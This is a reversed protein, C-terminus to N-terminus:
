PKKGINKRLKGSWRTALIGRACLQQQRTVHEDVVCFYHRQLIYYVTAELAVVPKKGKVRNLDEHLGDLLFRVPFLLYFVLSGSQFRHDM